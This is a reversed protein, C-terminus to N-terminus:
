PENRSKRISSASARGDLSDIPARERRAFFFNPARAHPPRKAVLGVNNAGCIRREPFHRSLYKQYSKDYGVNSGLAAAHAM